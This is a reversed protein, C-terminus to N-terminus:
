TAIEETTMNVFWEDEMAVTRLINPAITNLLCLMINKQTNGEVPTVRIVEKIELKIM